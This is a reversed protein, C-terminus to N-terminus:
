APLFQEGHSASAYTVPCLVNGEGDVNLGKFMFVNGAPLIIKFQLSRCAENLSDALSKVDKEGWGVLQSLHDGFDSGGFVGFYNEDYGWVWVGTDADAPPEADTVEITDKGDKSVQKPVFSKAEDLRLSWIGDHTNDLVYVRRLGIRVNTHDMDAWLSDLGGRTNTQSRVHAEARSTITIYARRQVDNGHPTSPVADSTWSITFASTGNYFSREQIALGRRMTNHAGVDLTWTKTATYLNKTRQPSPATLNLTSDPNANKVDDSFDITDAARLFYPVIYQNFFAGNSIAMIGDAELNHPDFSNINIQKALSPVFNGANGDKITDVDRDDQTVMCFNLAGADATSAQSTSYVFKRPIFLPVGPSPPLVQSIGYGLVFPNKPIKAINQANRGTGPVPSVGNAALEYGFWANLSNIFDTLFPGQAVPQDKNDTARLTNTIKVSQMLCFISSVTFDRSDVYGKITHQVNSPLSAVEQMTQIEKSSLDADWSFSWGSINTEAWYGEEEEPAVWRRYVSDLNLGNKPDPNQIFKLTVTSSLSKRPNLKISPAAIWGVVGGKSYKVTGDPNKKYTLMDKEMMPPHLELAHNILYDPTPQTTGPQPLPVPKIPTNYLLELQNNIAPETISLVLDFGKLSNTDNSPLDSM